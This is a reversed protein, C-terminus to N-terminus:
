REEGFTPNNLNIHKNDLFSPLASHPTMNDILSDLNPPSSQTRAHPSLNRILTIPRHAISTPSMFSLELKEEMSISHPSSITSVVADSSDEHLDEYEYFNGENATQINPVPINNNVILVNKVNNSLTSIGRSCGDMVSTLNELISDYSTHKRGLVKKMQAKCGNNLEKYITKKTQLQEKLETVKDSRKVQMKETVRDVQDQSYDLELAANSRNINLDKIPQLQELLESIPAFVQTNAIEQMPNILDAKIQSSIVIMNTVLKQRVPDESHSFSSNFDDIVRMLSTSMGQLHFMFEAIHTNIEITRKEMDICEENLADFEDDVTHNSVMGVQQKVKQTMRQMSSMWDGMKTGKMTTM